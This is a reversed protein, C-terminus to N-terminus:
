FVLMANLSAATDPVNLLPADVATSAAAAYLGQGVDLVNLSLGHARAMTAAADLEGDPSGVAGLRTLLHGIGRGDAKALAELIVWAQLFRADRQVPLPERTLVQAATEVILRRRPDMRITRPAEIDVGIAGADSVGVLAFRGCHSLSFAGTHPPPLLPRGYRDRAFSVCRMAPGFHRELILRLAIAAAHRYHRDLPDRVAASRAADDPSLRATARECALLADGSADLDALWLETHNTTPVRM